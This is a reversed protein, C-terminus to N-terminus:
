SLLKKVEIFVYNRTLVITIKTTLKKTKNLLLICKLLLTITKNKQCLSFPFTLPSTSNAPRHDTM